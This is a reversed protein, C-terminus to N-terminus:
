VIVRGTKQLCRNLAAVGAAPENKDGAADAPGVGLEETRNDCRDSGFIEFFKVLRDNRVFTSQYGNEPPVAGYERAIGVAFIHATLPNRRPRWPILQDFITPNIAKLSTVAGGM